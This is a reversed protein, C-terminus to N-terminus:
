DGSYDANGSFRALTDMTTIVRQYYVEITLMDETKLALRLERLGEELLGCDCYAAAGLLQHVSHRLAPYDRRAHAHAMEQRYRPLELLLRALLERAFDQGLSQLHLDEEPLPPLTRQPIPPLPAPAPPVFAHRIRQLLGRTFKRTRTMTVTDRM